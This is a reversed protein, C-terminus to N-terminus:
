KRNYKRFAMGTQFLGYSIFLKAFYLLVIGSVSLHMDEQNQPINVINFVNFVNLFKKFVVDFGDFSGYTFMQETTGLYNILHFFFVSTVITFIIGCVWSVGFNNSFKNFTLAILDFFNRWIHKSKERYLMNMDISHFKLYNAINGSKQAERKLLLATHRDQLKPFDNNGLLMFEGTISSEDLKFSENIICESIDIRGFITSSICELSDFHSNCIHLRNGTGIKCFAMQLMGIQYNQIHIDGNLILNNFEIEKIYRMKEKPCDIMNIGTLTLFVIKIPHICNVESLDLSSIEGGAIVVNMDINAKKLSLGGKFTNKSILFRYNYKENNLKAKKISLRSLDCEGKVKCLNIITELANEIICEHLSLVDEFVCQEFSVNSTFKTNNFYVGKDAKVKFFSCTGIECDCFHVSGHFHVYHFFAGNIISNNFIIDNYVDCLYPNDLTATRHSIGEVNISHIDFLADKTNGEVIENLVCNDLRISPGSIQEIEKRQHTIYRNVILEEAEKSNHIRKKEEM